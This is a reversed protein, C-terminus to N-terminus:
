LEGHGESTKSRTFWLVTLRDWVRKAIVDVAYKRVVDLRAQRGRKIGEMPNVVISKMEKMLSFINPEANKKENLEYEIGYSNEKTMYETVGSFNTVLIPLSMSMAEVCPLCWGEGRTPLVFANSTYYLTRLEEKSLDKEVLTIKALEHLTKRNFHTFAYKELIRHINNEGPLWSPKYTRLILEVNDTSTFSTWYSQLLVDWGKRHEWKFVSVFRTTDDNKILTTSPTAATKPNYFNTDMPEPMVYLHSPPIGSDIFVNYHFQTPIWIEDMRMAQKAESIPLITSETMQRGILLHPRLQTLKNYNYDQNPLKHLILISPSTIKNQHGFMLVEQELSTLQKKMENSCTGVNFQFNEFLKSLGVAFTLAEMFFGSFDCGIPAHWVVTTSSPLTPTTTTSATDYFLSSTIDNSTAAPAIYSWINHEWYSAWSTSFASSIFILTALSIFLLILILIANLIRQAFEILCKTCCNLPKVPM